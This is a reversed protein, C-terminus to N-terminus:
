EVGLLKVTKSFSEDEILKSILNIKDLAESYETLRKLLDFSTVNVWDEFSLPCALQIQFDDLSASVDDIQSILDDELLKYLYADFASAHQRLYFLSNNLATKNEWFEKCRADYVNTNCDVYRKYLIPLKKEDEMESVSTTLKDIADILYAKAGFQFSNDRQNKHVIIEVMHKLRSKSVNM